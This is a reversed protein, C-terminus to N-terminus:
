MIKNENKNNKLIFVSWTFIAVDIVILLINIHKLFLLAFSHDAERIMRFYNNTFEDSCGELNLNNISNQFKGFTIGASHCYNLCFYRTIYNFFAVVGQFSLSHQRNKCCFATYISNLFLCVIEFIMILGAWGDNVSNIQEADYKCELLSKIKRKCELKFPIYSRAFIKWNIKNQFIFGPLVDELFGMQNMQFFTKENISDLVIFRDDKEECSKRTNVMLRYEPHDFNRNIQWNNFCVNEENVRFEVLPSFSHKYSWFLYIGETEDLLISHNFSPDPPRKSITLSTIPCQGFEKPICYFIDNINQPKYIINNNHAINDNKPINEINKHSYDNNNGINEDNNNYKDYIDGNNTNKNIYDNNEHIYGGCQITNEPCVYKDNIIESKGVSFSDFFNTNEMRKVCIVKYNRWRFLNKATVSQVDSCGIRTQNISCIGKDLVQRRGYRNKPVLLAQSCDCGHATGQWYYNFLKSYNQPCEEDLTIKIDSILSQNWNEILQFYPFTQEQTFSSLGITLFFSIIISFFVITAYFINIQQLKRPPILPEYTEFLSLPRM